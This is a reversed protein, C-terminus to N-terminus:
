KGPARAMRAQEGVDLHPHEISLGILDAFRRKIKARCQRAAKRTFIQQSFEVVSRKRLRCCARGATRGQAVTRPCQKGSM